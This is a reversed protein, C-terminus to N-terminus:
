VARHYGRAKLGAEFADATERLKAAYERLGEVGDDFESPTDFKQQIREASAVQSGWRTAERRLHDVRSYAAAIAQERGDHKVADEVFLLFMKVEGATGGEDGFLGSDVVTECREPTKSHRMIDYQASPAQGQARRM